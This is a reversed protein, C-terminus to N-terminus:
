NRGGLLGGLLGTVPATTSGSGTAPALVGNLLGTVPALANANDTGTGGPLTPALSNVTDLLPAAVSDVASTVTAVVPAVAASVQNVATEAQPGLLGGALNGVPQLGAEVQAATTPLAVDALNGQSLVSVTALQGSVAGGDSPLLNAGILPQASSAGPLM